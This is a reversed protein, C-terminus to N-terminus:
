GLKAMFRERNVIFRTHGGKGIVGDADCATIDFKLERNNIATLTATASVITGVKTARTHEINLATGVSTQGEELHPAVAMMAANEMIACMVPTALVALDGSGIYEATSSPEVRMTTTHSIGIEM